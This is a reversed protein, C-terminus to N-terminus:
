WALFDWWPKDSVETEGTQADVKVEVDVSVPIIGLFSKEETGKARYIPKEEDIDLELTEVSVLDQAIDKAEAPLMGVEADELFIKKDRIEVSGKYAASANSGSIVVQDKDITIDIPEEGGESDELTVSVVSPATKGGSSSDGSESGCNNCATMDEDKSMIVFDSLNIDNDPMKIARTFASEIDNQEESANTEVSVPVEVKTPTIVVRSFDQVPSLNVSIPTKTITINGIIDKDKEITMNLELSPKPMNVTMNSTINAKIPIEIQSAASFIPMLSLVFLVMILSIKKM